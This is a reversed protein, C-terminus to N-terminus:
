RTASASAPVYRLEDFPIEGARVDLFPEGDRVGVSGFGSATCLFARFDGAIAPTLHLVRDVADYRAGSLAQLLAYSSLARAYFHGCEIEDFPNRRRGDYRSRAIRVIELGEDIRRQLILHSAVQYEIGTWVEESYVFPLTPRGGSPWTCLLLGGENGFAYGSRQPNAHASLDRRLNHRHVARLHSEVKAPDLTEGLGCVAGLWSGIVGDALCGSGYQYKPGEQELLERAEPSYRTGPLEAAFETPPPARLDRWQVRQVFHEGDFLETEIRERGRVSLERYPRAEDGLAEAMRAAAELAAVYISSCMGDAGWFEIDYTNHHPERLVGERDPDWTAIAHELSLRAKPWLRRLWDTDGSIRWDRYLKLVGGLQGDAAAHSAHSAPRIPLPARFACHGSEDICEGLETERLSRELEPFLHALAQAYNWVHTCSGACCGERDSCGEWAWIRGDAQRLLTPSRLISLNSSVAEVVEPPLDTDFFADRFAASRRRLDEHRTEADEILADIDRYRGGVWPRYADGTEPGTRLDSHPVYWYLRLPVEREAGPALEFPLYLSAGRSSGRGDDWPEAAPAGGQSVQKWLLTLPDFWDGRFWRAHVRAEPSDLVAAFAGEAQPCDDSGDQFLVFGHPLTRVGRDAGRPDFMLNACHFSFVCRLAANGPNSLRYELAAMPLASDDAHGPVFPSWGTIGAAAPVADDRLGVTAFPFRAEFSAQRFRPLGYTHGPAGSGSGVTQGERRFLLPKYVPVPGELVRAVAGDPGEVHLAAFALPENLLDPRHRLSAHSLAGAGDLCIMGAGVGGLPFAIRALHEGGYEAGFRRESSM